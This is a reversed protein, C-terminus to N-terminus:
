EGGVRLALGAREGTWIGWLQQVLVPAAAAAPLESAASACARAVGATAVGTAPLSAAGM